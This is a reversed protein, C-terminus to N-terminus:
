KAGVKLKYEEPCYEDMLKQTNDCWTLKAVKELKPQEPLRSIIEPITPFFKCDDICKDVAYVVQSYDLHKLKRWYINLFSNTVEKNKYEGLGVLLAKFKDSNDKNL